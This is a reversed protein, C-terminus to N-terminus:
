TNRCYIEENRVRDSESLQRVSCNLLLTHAYLQDMYDYNQQGLESEDNTIEDMLRNILYHQTCDPCLNLDIEALSVFEDEDQEDMDIKNQELENKALLYVELQD